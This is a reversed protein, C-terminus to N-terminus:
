LADFKVGLSLQWIERNSFRGSRSGIGPDFINAVAREQDFSSYTIQAGGAVSLKDSVRYAISPFASIYISDYSQIFYRGPWDELYDSFGPYPRAGTISAFLLAIIFLPLRSMRVRSKRSAYRMARSQLWRLNTRGLWYALWLHLSRMVAGPPLFM